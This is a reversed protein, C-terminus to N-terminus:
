SQWGVVRNRGANKANYLANDACKILEEQNSADNPFTTTGISVTVPFTIGLQTKEEHSFLKESIASRIREGLLLSNEKQTGPSIIVFEEGGYRAVVDTKRTHINLLIGVKELVMDGKQHGYLDNFQKFHDLDMLLLSLGGYNLRKCREIENRLNEQFYRYNYLGTLGDTIALKRIEEHLKANNISLAARSSILELFNIDDKNFKKHQIYACSFVGIINDGTKLPIAILSSMEQGSSYAGTKHLDDIILLEGTKVVNGLLSDEIKIRDRALVGGSFMGKSVCTRLGTGKEDIMSISTLDAKLFGKTVDIIISLQEDLSLTSGIKLSLNYLEHLAKSKEEIEKLNVKLTSLLVQLKEKEIALEESQAKIEDTLYSSFGAIVFLLPLRGMFVPLLCSYTPSTLIGILIYLLSICTTVFFCRTPNYYIAAFIIVIFYLLFFDSKIGDTLYIIGSIFVIDLTSEAYCIRYGKGDQWQKQWPIFRIVINYIAALLILVYIQTRSMGQQPFIEIMLVVILIILWRTKNAIKFM